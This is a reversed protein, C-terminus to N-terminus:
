EAKTNQLFVYNQKKLINRYIPRVINKVTGKVGAWDTAYQYQKGIPIFVEKMGTIRAMTILSKRRFLNIHELPAMPNLSNTSNKPLTWDMIALRRKIRSARPVSIKIVGDPKMANKLYDLTQLPNPIHEFVQETNIFDFKHKPIEPWSISEIGNLAAHRLREQSLECGFSNCGFAKVMLAWKGWGMGFDLFDLSLPEKNLWAIVQMIEQAYHSYRPLGSQNQENHLAQEPDIWYEYLREMLLGNAIERQFILSCNDCEYLLYTADVLYEFEVTGGYFVELYDKIPPQDFPTQYIATLRISGCAPCEDRNVFYKSSM